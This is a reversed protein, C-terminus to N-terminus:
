RSSRFPDGFRETFVIKDLSFRGTYPKDPEQAKGIALLAVVEAEEPINFERKVAAPDFGEMPATDFGYTEAAYMMTTFAIMGHRNVWLPMPITNLFDVAGKKATEVSDESGVGRRTGERLVEDFTKKWEDKMGLTIVVVPAEAIKAQGFAARMLRERNAKERVVIFRWPQTNYGSPAQAALKLIADLYNAPVPEDPHFHSTARRNLLLDPFPILHEGDPRQRPLDRPKDDMVEDGFNYKM